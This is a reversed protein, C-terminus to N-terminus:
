GEGEETSGEGRIGRAAGVILSVLYEHNEATPAAEGVNVGQRMVTARHAVQMVHDLNHSILVVSVGHEPLSGVLRLVQAAERLGLAATPEDLVVIRSAFAVARAVAVAQRQGGSMLGLPRDPDPIVIRLQDAYRNWERRMARRQLFSLPGLWRPGRRERALFFNEVVTLNDFVALDQYVTEIGLQRADAPSRLAVPSGDIEIAGRDLRHVGSIAKILTSKGAGNDGLLALIEGRHLRLNVRDLARVAGFSKVADRVELVVDGAAPSGSM